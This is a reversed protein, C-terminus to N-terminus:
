WATGGDKQQRIFRSDRVLSPSASLDSYYLDYPRTEKKRRKRQQGRGNKKRHETQDDTQQEITCINYLVGCITVGTCPRYQFEYTDLSCSGLSHDVGCVNKGARSQREKLSLVPM